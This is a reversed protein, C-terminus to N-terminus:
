LDFAFSIESTKSILMVRSSLLKIEARTKDCGRGLCRIVHQQETHTAQTTGARPRIKIFAVDDTQCSQLLM